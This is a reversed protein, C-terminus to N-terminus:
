IHRPPCGPYRSVTPASRKEVYKHVPISVPPPPSHKLYLPCFPAPLWSLAHIRLAPGLLPPALPRHPLVERQRLAPLRQFIQRERQQLPGPDYLVQECGAQPSHAPSFAGGHIEAHVPVLVPLVHQLVVPADGPHQVAPHLVHHRGVLGVGGVDAAHGRRVLALADQAGPIVRVHVPHHRILRAQHQVGEVRVAHGKVEHIGYMAGDPQSM